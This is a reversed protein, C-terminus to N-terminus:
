RTTMGQAAEVAWKMAQLADEFHTAKHAQAVHEDIVKQAQHRRQALAPDSSEAPVIALTRALNDVMWRLRGAQEELRTSDRHVESELKELQDMISLAEASTRAQNFKAQLHDFDARCQQVARLGPRLCEWDQADAIAQDVLRSLEARFDAQWKRQTAVRENWARQSELFAAADRRAAQLAAPDGKAATFETLVRQYRGVLPDEASLAVHRQSEEWTAVLQDRDAVADRELQAIAARQRQGLAGLEHYLDAARVSLDMLEDSDAFAGMTTTSAAAPSLRLMIGALERRAVAVDPGLGLGADHAELYALLRESEYLNRSLGSLQHAATVYGDATPFDHDRRAAPASENLLVAAQLLMARIARSTPTPQGPGKIAVQTDDLEATTEQIRRDLQLRARNLEAVRAELKTADATAADLQLAAADLEPLPRRNHFQSELVAVAERRRGIATDLEELGGIGARQEVRLAAVVADLRRLLAQSAVRLEAPTADLDQMQAQIDQLARGEARVTRAMAKLKSADGSVAFADNPVVIFHQIPLSRRPITPLRLAEIRRATAAQEALLGEVAMSIAAVKTTYAPSRLSQYPTLSEQFRATEVQTAALDDGLQERRRVNDEARQELLHPIVLGVLILFAVIFILTLLLSEM